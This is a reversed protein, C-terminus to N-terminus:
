QGKSERGLLHKVLCPLADLGAMALSDGFDQPNQLGHRIDFIGQKAEQTMKPSALLTYPM